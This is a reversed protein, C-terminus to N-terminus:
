QAQLEGDDELATYTICIYKFHKDQNQKNLNEETEKPSEDAELVYTEIGTEEEDNTILEICQLIDGKKYHMNKINQM